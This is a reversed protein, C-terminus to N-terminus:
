AAAKGGFSSGCLGKGTAPIWNTSSGQLTELAFTNGGPRSARPKFTCYATACGEGWGMAPRDVGAGETAGAEHEKDDDLPVPLLSTTEGADLDTGVHAQATSLGSLRLRAQGLEPGGEPDKRPAHNRGFCRTFCGTGCGVDLLSEDPRPKLLSRVM